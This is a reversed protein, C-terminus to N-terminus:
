LSGFDANKVGADQCSKGPVSGYLGLAREPAGTGESQAAEAGDSVRYDVSIIAKVHCCGAHKTKTM